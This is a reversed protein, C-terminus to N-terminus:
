EEDVREQSELTQEMFALLQTLASFTTAKGSAIHEVRGIVTDPTFGSGQRLQVVFASRRPLPPPIHTPNM